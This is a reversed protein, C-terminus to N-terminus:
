EEYKAADSARHEFAYSMAMTREAQWKAEQSPASDIAKAIQKRAQEYQGDLDLKTGSSLLAHFEDAPENSQAILAAGTIAVVTLLRFIHRPAIHMAGIM